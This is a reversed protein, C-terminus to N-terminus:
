RSAWPMCSLLESLSLSDVPSFLAERVGRSHSPLSFAPSLSLAVTKGTAPGGVQAFTVLGTYSLCSTVPGGARM